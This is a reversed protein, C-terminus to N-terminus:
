TNLLCENKLISNELRFYKIDIFTMVEKYEQLGFQNPKIEKKKKRKM